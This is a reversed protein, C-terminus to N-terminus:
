RFEEIYEGLEKNKKQDAVVSAPIVMKWRQQPENFTMYKSIGLVRKSSGAPTPIVGINPSTGGQTQQEGILAARNRLLNLQAQESLGKLEAPNTRTLKIYADIDKKHDQNSTTTQQSPEPEEKQQRAKAKWSRITGPNKNPFQAYYEANDLDPNQKYFAEFVDFTISPESPETSNSEKNESM